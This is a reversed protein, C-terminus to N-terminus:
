KPIYREEYLKRDKTFESIGWFGTPASITPEKWESSFIRIELKLDKGDKRKAVFAYIRTGSNETGLLVPGNFTANCDEIKNEACFTDLRSSALKEAREEGVPLFMYTTVLLLLLVLILKSVM